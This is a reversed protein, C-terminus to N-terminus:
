GWGGSTIIWAALYNFDEYSRYGPLIDDDRALPFKEHWKVFEVHGDMYLVNSGGPVHNMVLTGMAGGGLHMANAYADYMVVITSQAQAGAAPNNIDTILFREIGERLHPYTGKLDSGDMDYYFDWGGPPNATTWPTEFDGWSARQSGVYGWLGNNPAMFGTNTMSDCGPITQLDTVARWYFGPDTWTGDINHPWAKDRLAALQSPTTVLWPHYFYSIPMNLMISLCEKKLTEDVGTANAIKNIQAPFDAQIGMSSGIGDGGGDSPCRSIAPDTWYDPYLADASPSLPLTWTLLGQGIDYHDFQIITRWDSNPPFLGGKSESAFMKFVLGWQKLNNACSARRAAERARALAPLLIAALIGIIAIVVLLEILTFGRRSNM